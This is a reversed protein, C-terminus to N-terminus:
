HSFCDQTIRGDHGRETPCPGHDYGSLPNCRATQCALQETRKRPSTQSRGSARPGPRKPCWGEQPRVAQTTSTERKASGGGACTIGAGAGRSRPHSHHTCHTHESAHRISGPRRRGPLSFVRCMSECWWQGMGPSCGRWGCRRQGHRLLGLWLEGRPQLAHTSVRKQHAPLDGDVSFLCLLKVISQRM